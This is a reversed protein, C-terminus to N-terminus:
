PIFPQASKFVVCVRLVSFGITFNETGKDVRKDKQELSILIEDDEDTIDFTYQLRVFYMYSIDNYRKRLINKKTLM